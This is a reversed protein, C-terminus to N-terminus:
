IARRWNSSSANNSSNFRNSKHKFRNFTKAIMAVLDDDDTEDCGDSIEITLGSNLFSNLMKKMQSQVSEASMLSVCPRETISAVKPSQAHNM